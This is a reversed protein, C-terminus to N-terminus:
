LIFVLLAVTIAVAALGVQWRKVTVTGATENAEAAVDEVVNEVIDEVKKAMKKPM